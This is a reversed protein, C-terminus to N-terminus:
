PLLLLSACHSFPSLLTELWTIRRESVDVNPPPEAAQEGTV